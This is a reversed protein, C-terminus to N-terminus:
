ICEEKFHKIGRSDIWFPVDCSSAVKPRGRGAGGKARKVQAAEKPVGDSAPEHLRAAEVAAPAAAAFATNRAARLQLPQEALRM